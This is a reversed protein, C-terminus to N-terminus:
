CASDVKSIFIESRPSTATSASLAPEKSLSKERKVSIHSIPMMIDCIFSFITAWAARHAPTLNEGLLTDLAYFLANIVAAYHNADIGKFGHARAVNTFKQIEDESGIAKVAMGVMNTLSHARLAIGGTWFVKTEPAKMFLHNYFADYLLTGPSTKTNGALAKMEPTDGSLLVKWSEKALLIDNPTPHADLIYGDFYPTNEPLATIPFIQSCVSGM